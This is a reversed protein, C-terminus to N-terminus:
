SAFTAMPVDLTVEPALNSTAPFMTAVFRVKLEVPAMVM